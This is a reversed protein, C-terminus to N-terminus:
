RSLWWDCLAVIALFFMVMLLALLPAGLFAIILFLIFYWIGLKVGSISAGLMVILGISVYIPLERRRDPSANIWAKLTKM